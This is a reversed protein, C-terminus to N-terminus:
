LFMRFFRLIFMRYVIKIGDIVTTGKYRDLYITEIPIDAYKLNSKRMNSITESAFSYDNSLWRIVKYAKLNFARYGCQTDRINIKNLSRDLSTLVFNGMRFIFPMNRNLKRHGFVIDKNKLKSIFKPIDSAKHQEDADMTIVYKAGSLFAFDCGVRTAGGAGLNIINKLVFPTVKLAREYTKDTSGDDVVVVADVYKRAEKVVKQIHEEENHAPIVVWSNSAIEKLNMPWKYSDDEM